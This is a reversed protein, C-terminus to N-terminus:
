FPLDDQTAVPTSNIAGPAITVPDQSPQIAPRVYVNSKSLKLMSVNEPSSIWPAYKHFRMFTSPANETGYCTHVACPSGIKAKLLKAVGDIANAMSNFAPLAYDKGYFTDILNRLTMGIAKSVRGDTDAAENFYNLYQFMEGDKKFILKYGVPVNDKKNQEINNFIVDEVIGVEGNNFIISSSSFGENLNVM